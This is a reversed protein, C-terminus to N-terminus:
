VLSHKNGSENMSPSGLAFVAKITDAMIPLAVQLSYSQEVRSRGCVGMRERLRPDDRLVRFADVWEETTTVLFGCDTSVIDLNAGVGTGVVPVRCAMYQILKFGCKGKAWEDDFLPMVGIDFSNILEVESSESWPLNVVEVGPIASFSGGVVVFRVYGERGVIELAARLLSLYVTTTPSGIWGITFVDPIKKPCYRYREIDIVTPLLTTNANLARAHKALFENGALVHGARAFVDDFKNKLLFSVSRFRKLQYKIFFADDLDYIYPVRVLRSEIFGPLLPFLEGYVIAVDYDRQTLLLRLRRLYDGLYRLKPYSKGQYSLRIYDNSLLPEIHLDIGLSKLGDTYQELRYRTSAAMLGYLSLAIVKITM